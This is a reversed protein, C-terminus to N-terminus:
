FSLPPKEKASLIDPIKPLNRMKVAAGDLLVGLASDM